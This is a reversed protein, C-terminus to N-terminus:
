PDDHWPAFVTIGPTADFFDAQSPQVEITVTAADAALVLVSKALVRGDPAHVEVRQGASLPAAAGIPLTLAVGTNATPAQPARPAAAGFDTDLALSGPRGPTMAHRTAVSATSAVLVVVVVFLLWRVAPREMPAHYSAAFGCSGNM